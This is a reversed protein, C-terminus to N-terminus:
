KVVSFFWPELKFRVATDIHTANGWLCIPVVLLPLNGINNAHERQYIDRYRSGSLSEGLINNPAQYMKTPDNM